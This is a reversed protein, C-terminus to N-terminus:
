PQQVNDIRFILPGTGTTITDVSDFVVYGTSPEIRAYTTPSLRADFMKIPQGSYFYQTGDGGGPGAVKVMSWWGKTSRHGACFLTWNAYGVKTNPICWNYASLPNLISPISPTQVWDQAIISEDAGTQAFTTNAVAYGCKLPRNVPDTYDINCYGSANFSYLQFTYQYKLPLETRKNILPQASVLSALALFLCLGLLSFTSKHM